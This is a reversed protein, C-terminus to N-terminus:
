IFEAIVESKIEKLARNINAIHKNFLVMIKTVNDSSMPALVQKESLSKTTINIRLKSMKLENIIKQVKEIKKFSLNLFNNKIKMIEEIDSL